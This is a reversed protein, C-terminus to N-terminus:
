YAAYMQKFAEADGGVDPHLKRAKRRYANKVERKTAGPEIDLLAYEARNSKAARVQVAANIQEPTVFAEVEAKIMKGLDGALWRDLENMQQQERLYRAYKRPHHTRLSAYYDEVQLDIAAEYTIPARSTM